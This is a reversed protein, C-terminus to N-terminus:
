PPDVPGSTFRLHTRLGSYTAACSRNSVVHPIAVLIGKTCYRIYGPLSLSGLSDLEVARLETGMEVTKHKMELHAIRRADAQM